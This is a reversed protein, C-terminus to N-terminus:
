RYECGRTRIKPRHGISIHFLYLDKCSLALFPYLHICCFRSLSTDPSNLCYIRIQAPKVSSITKKYRRTRREKENCDICQPNRFKTRRLLILSCKPCLYCAGQVTMQRIYFYNQKNTLAQKVAERLDRDDPEIGQPKYKTFWDKSGHDYVKLRPEQRNVTSSVHWAALGQADRRAETPHLIEAKSVFEGQDYPAFTARESGSGSIPRIPNGYQDYWPSPYQFSPTAGATTPM